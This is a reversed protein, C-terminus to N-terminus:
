ENKWKYIFPLKWKRVQIGWTKFQIFFWTNAVNDYHYYHAWM